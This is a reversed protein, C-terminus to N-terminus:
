IKGNWQSMLLMFWTGFVVFLDYTIIPFIWLRWAKRKKEASKWLSRVMFGNLIFCVILVQGVFTFIVSGDDTVPRILNWAALEVIYSVVITASYFSSPKEFRERFYKYDYVHIMFPNFAVLLAANLLWWVIGEDILSNLAFAVVVGLLYLTVGSGWKNIIQKSKM